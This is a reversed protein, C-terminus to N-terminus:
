ACCEQGSRDPTEHKFGCLQITKHQQYFTVCHNEACVRLIEELLRHLSCSSGLDFRRAQSSQPDMREHICFQGRPDLGFRHSSSSQPDMSLGPMVPKPISADTLFAEKIAALTLQTGKACQLTDPSTGHGRLVLMLESPREPKNLKSLTYEKFKKIADEATKDWRITPREYEMMEAMDQLLEEDKRCAKEIIKDDGPQMLVLMYKKGKSPFCEPQFVFKNVM